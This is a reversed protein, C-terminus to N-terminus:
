RIRGERQAATLDAEFAQVEADRGAYLGRRKDDYFKSIQIRSYIPKDAPVQSDGSAPRARGPAALTELDLAATRPAPQPVQQEVQASPVQQGTANAEALFDRFLAIVQPANAGEVAANLMKGRVQSTYVNPLHLWNKFQQSTNIARWNPIVGDLTAFLERKSTSKVRQTLKQNEARLQDLEPTVSSLAARKALDILDDGYAERDAATILNNHDTQSAGHNVPRPNAQVQALLEQTRVLEQGLQRMQEEMVGNSKQSAHFRGQMSLYRHRWEEASVNADETAQPQPPPQLSTSEPQTPEPDRSHLPEPQPPQPLAEKAPAAEQAADKPYFQQHIADAAAAAAKVHDPIRVNPDAAGDAPTAKSITDTTAM